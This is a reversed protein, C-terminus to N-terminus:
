ISYGVIDLPSAPNTDLDDQSSFYSLLEPAYTRAWIAAMKQNEFSMITSLSANLIKAKRGLVMVASYNGLSLAM